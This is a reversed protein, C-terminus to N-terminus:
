RAAPRPCASCAACSRRRRPRPSARPAGRPARLKRQASCGSPDDGLPATEGLWIQDTARHGTARLGAIASTALPPVHLGLAPDGPPRLGRVAASLWSRLNPENWISWAKVTPYRTGLARVFAGFLTPDPKCTSRAKVSGKCRSAWAPIPGTPTLVVSM